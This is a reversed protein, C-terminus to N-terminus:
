NIDFDFIKDKAAQKFAKVLKKFPTKPDVSPVADPGVEIEKGAINLKM